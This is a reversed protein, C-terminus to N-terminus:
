MTDIIKQLMEKTYVGNLVIPQEKVTFGLGKYYDLIDLDESNYYSVRTFPYRYGFVGEQLEEGYYAKALPDVKDLKNCRATAQKQTGDFTETFEYAIDGRDRTTFTTIEKFIIFKM